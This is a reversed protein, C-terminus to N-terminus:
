IISERRINLTQEYKNLEDIEAEKTKILSRLDNSRGLLQFDQKKAANFAYEDADKRLDEINTALFRKKKEIENIEEGVVKRKLDKENLKKENKHQELYEHYRQRSKGVSKRLDKSIQIDHPAADKARMHDHVMRLAILSSELQNPVSFEDNSSFGREVASQGHFMCFILKLVKWMAHYEKVPLIQAFFTDLRDTFKNFSLFKEEEKPVVVAMFQSYQNKAEDGEKVTIREQIVLNELMKSFRLAALERKSRDVIINPSLSASLRTFPYKLPSKELMHGVLASLTVHVDNYFVKLVSEKFRPSKKYQSVYMKAGMGIDTLSGPKYLGKDTVDIKLLKMVTDAKQMVNSLIFMNMFSRMLTELIECLFPVMPQDTQFGRLFENLKSSLYEILKFKAQLLPDDVVKKLSLFSKGEGQGPQKSKPLNMLHKVFKIFSPWIDNARQLCLENECWRHGCFPLPYTNTETVMEFMERRAPSDNLITCMSKLVKGISWDSSKVSTSLSGHVVHLGCTGINILSSLENFCRKEDYLKLFLLNVNPGDSSIQLLNRSDNIKSGCGEEFKLLIDDAKAGGLFQSTLYRTEAIGKDENWYRVLIDMQSKQLHKNLSEDFSLSYFPSISIEKLLLEEFYPALGYKIVYKCKDKQLTMNKAIESDPFMVSFLKVVEDCSHQSFKSTVVKLCWRIEADIVNNKEIMSTISQQQPLTKKIIDVEHSTEHSKELHRELSRCTTVPAKLKHTKGFKEYPYLGAHRKLASEGGNSILIDKRCDICYATKEDKKKVWSQYLPDCLWIDKFHSERPM